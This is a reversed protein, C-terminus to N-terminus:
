VLGDTVLRYVDAAVAGPDMGHTVLQIGAGLVGQVLMTTSESRPVGLDRLVRVVPRLLAAHLVMLDERSSPSLDAERLAGAIAHRGDATMAMTADIFRRLEPLGPEVGALQQEIEADWREIADIAISVVLDDKTAFYDYFSSRALGARECVSRPTVGSLGSEVLVAEGARLLAARQAARHEAVTRASIKPM